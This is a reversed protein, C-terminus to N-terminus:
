KLSHVGGVYFRQGTLRLKSEQSLLFAFGDDAFTVDAVAKVEQHVARQKCYSIGVIVTVADAFM